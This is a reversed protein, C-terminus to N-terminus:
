IQIRKGNRIAEMLAERVSALYRDVDAEDALWAKDFPARISRYPVYEVPSEAITTKQKGTETKYTGADTDIQAMASLRALIRQYEDDEFRRLTDRIVAILM